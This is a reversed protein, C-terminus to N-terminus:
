CNFVTVAQQESPISTFHASHLSVLMEERICHQAPKELPTKETLCARGPSPTPRTKVGNWAEVGMMGRTEWSCEDGHHTQGGRGRELNRVRESGNMGEPMEPLGEKSDEDEAGEEATQVSM